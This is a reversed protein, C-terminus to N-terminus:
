CCMKRNLQQLERKLMLSTQKSTMYEKVQKMSLEQHRPNNPDSNDTVYIGSKKNDQEKQMNEMQVKREKERREIEKLVKPKNKM